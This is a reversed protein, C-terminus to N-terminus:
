EGATLALAVMVRPSGLGPRSLVAAADHDGVDAHWELGVGGDTDVNRHIEEGVSLQDGQSCGV